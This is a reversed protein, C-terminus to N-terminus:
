FYDNIFFGGLILVKLRINSYFHYQQNLLLDNKTLVIKYNLKNKGFLFVPM